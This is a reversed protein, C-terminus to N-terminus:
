LRQTNFTQKQARMWCKSRLRMQWSLINLTKQKYFYQLITSKIEEPSLNSKYLIVIYLSKHNQKPFALPIHILNSTSCTPSSLLFGREEESISIPYPINGSKLLVSNKDERSNRFVSVLSISIHCIHSQLLNMIRALMILATIRFLQWIDILKTEDTLHRSLPPFM